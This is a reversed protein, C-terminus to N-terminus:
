ITMKRNPFHGLCNTPCLIGAYMQSYFSFLSEFQSLIILKCKHLFHPPPTQKNTQNKTHSCPQMYQGKKYSGSSLNMVHFLVCRLNRTWVATWLQCAKSSIPTHTYYGKCHQLCPPFWASAVQHAQHCLNERIPPSSWAHETASLPTVWVWISESLFYQHRLFHEQLIQVM